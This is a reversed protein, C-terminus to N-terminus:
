SLGIQAALLPRSSVPFLTREQTTGAAGLLEPRANAADAMYDATELELHLPHSIACTRM